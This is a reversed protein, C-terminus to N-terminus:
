SEDNLDYKPPFPESPFLKGDKPKRFDHNLAVSVRDRLEDVTPHDCFYPALTSEWYSIYEARDGHKFSDMELLLMGSYISFGYADTEYPDIGSTRILLGIFCNQDSYLDGYSTQNWSDPNAEVYDLVQNVLAVVEPSPTYDSEFTDSNM